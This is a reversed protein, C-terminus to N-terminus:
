SSCSTMSARCATPRAEYAICQSDQLLPCPIRARARAEATIGHTRKDTAVVRARLTALEATSLHRRLHDILAIAEPPSLSVKLHCCFACGARCASPSPAAPALVMVEDFWRGVDHGVGVATSETRAGEWRM